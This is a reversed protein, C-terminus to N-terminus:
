YRNRINAQCLMSYMVMLNNNYTFLHKGIQLVKPDPWGPRVLSDLWQRLLKEIQPLDEKKLPNLGRLFNFSSSTVERRFRQNSQDAPLLEGNDYQQILEVALNYLQSPLTAIKFYNTLVSTGGDQLFLIFM